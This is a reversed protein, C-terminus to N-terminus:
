LRKRSRKMAPNVTPATLYAYVARGVAHEGHRRASEPLSEAALSDTVFVRNGQRHASSSSTRLRTKATARVCPKHSLLPRSGIRCYRGLSGLFHCRQSVVVVPQQDSPGFYRRYM